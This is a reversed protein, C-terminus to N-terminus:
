AADTVGSPKTELRKSIMQAPIGAVVTYPAVDKTVVANAGVIAGKGITVGPCICVNTGLWCDDEIRIPKDFEKAKQPDKALLAEQERIPLHPIYRFPHTGSSVFVNPSFICGKGIKVDGIITCRRQLSTGEDIHVASDTEIEVDSSIWVKKGITLRGDAGTILRTRAGIKVGREMKYSHGYGLLVTTPNIFVGRLAWQLSQLWRWPALKRLHLSIM